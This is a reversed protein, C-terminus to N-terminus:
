ESTNAWRARVRRLAPLSAGSVPEVLATEKARCKPSARPESWRKPPPHFGPAFRLQRTAFWGRSPPRPIGAICHSIPRRSCSFRVKFLFLAWSPAPRRDGAVAVRSVLGSSPALGRLRRERGEWRSRVRQCCRALASTITPRRVARPCRSRHRPAATSPLEELPLDQMAPFDRGGGASRRPTPGSVRHVGPDAAPHLL